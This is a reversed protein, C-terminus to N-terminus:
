QQPCYLFSPTELSLLGQERQVAFRGSDQKKEESCEGLLALPNIRYAYSKALLTYGRSFVANEMKQIVFTLTM